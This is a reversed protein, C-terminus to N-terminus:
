QEKNKEINTEGVMKVNEGTKFKAGKGVEVSNASKPVAGKGKQEKGIMSVNKVGKFTAKEGVSIKPRKDNVDISFDGKRIILRRGLWLAIAVVSATALILVIYVIPESPFM